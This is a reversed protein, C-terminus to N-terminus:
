LKMLKRANERGINQLNASNIDLADFWQAAAVADEYPYDTSFLLRDAGLLNLTIM